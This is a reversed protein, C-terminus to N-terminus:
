QDTGCISQLEGPSYRSVHDAVAPTMVWTRRAELWSVTPDRFDRSGSNTLVPNGAFKKSSRGHDLNYAISQDQFDNGGHRERHPDHATCIALLSRHGPTGVGFTNHRGYAASGSSIMGHSDSFLALPLNQWHVLDRSVAHGWHM